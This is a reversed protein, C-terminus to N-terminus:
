FEGADLLPEVVVHRREAFADLLDLAARRVGQRPEGRFSAPEIQGIDVAAMARGVDPRIREAYPRHHLAAADDDPVVIRPAGIQRWLLPRLGRDILEQALM